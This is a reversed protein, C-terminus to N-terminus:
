AKGGCRAPELIKCRDFAEDAGFAVTVEYSDGFLEKPSPRIEPRDEICLLRPADGSKHM